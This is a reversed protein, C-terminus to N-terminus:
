KLEKCKLIELQRRQKLYENYNTFVYSATYNTGLTDWYCNYKLTWERSCSSKWEGLEKELDKSKNEFNSEVFSMVVLGALCIMALWFWDNNTLKQKKM